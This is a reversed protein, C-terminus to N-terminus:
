MEFLASVLMRYAGGFGLREVRGAATIPYMGVQTGEVYVKVCGLQQGEEVPAEVSDELETECVVADRKGREVLLSQPVDLVCGCRESEGLRVAVEGLASGDLPIDALECHSFGYELLTRVAEFRGASSSSGLVVAILEMGDREAAGALCVGAHNTTGTKIGTMGDFTRLMKNTNTLQTEGGRLEDTWITIYNRVLEHRLVERSMIAVDRACSMHGEEDLGNANKFTTSTMGLEAARRNMDAVFADESGAVFEALAVAADNASAVAVARLLEDVTMVEGPELWIQSGGMSYAHESATVKDELSIEGRELAEMVLIMTMIKTISAIARPEDAKYEYIVEGTERELLIAATADLPAIEEASRTLFDVAQATQVSQEGGRSGTLEFFADADEGWAFALPALSVFLAALVLVATFRKM